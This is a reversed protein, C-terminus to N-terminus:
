SGKVVSNIKYLADQLHLSVQEGLVKRKWIELQDMNQSGKWCRCKDALKGKWIRSEKLSYVFVRVQRFINDLEVKKYKRV